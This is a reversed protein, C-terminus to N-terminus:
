TLNWIWSISHTFIRLSLKRLIQTLAFYFSQHIHIEIFFVNTFCSKNGSRLLLLSAIIIKEDAPVFFTRILLDSIIILDKKHSTSTTLVLYRPHGALLARGAMRVYPLYPGKYWVHQCNALDNFHIHRCKSSIESTALALVSNQWFSSMRDNRYMNCGTFNRIFTFRLTDSVMVTVDHHVHHCRLDDAEHNNVWGNIWACILSFM